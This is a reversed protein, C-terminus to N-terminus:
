FSGAARSDLRIALNRQPSRASAIRSPLRAVELWGLLGQIPPPAPTSTAKRLAGLRRCGGDSGELEPPCTQTYGQPYNGLNHGM